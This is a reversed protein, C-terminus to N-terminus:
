GACAGYGLLRVMKGDPVKGQPDFEQFIEM